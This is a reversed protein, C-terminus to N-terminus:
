YQAVKCPVHSGQWVISEDIGGDKIINNDCMISRGIDYARCYIRALKTKPLWKGKLSIFLSFYPLTGYKGVYKHEEKMGTSRFKWGTDNEKLRM